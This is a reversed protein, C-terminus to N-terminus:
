KVQTYGEKLARQLDGAPITGVKGDKNRVRVREQSPAPTSASRSPPKISGRETTPLGTQKGLDIEGPKVRNREELAQPEIEDAIKKYIKATETDGQMEYYTAAGNAAGYLAWPGKAAAKRVTSEWDSSTSTSQRPPAHEFKGASRDAAAIREASQIRANTIAIDADKGLKTTDFAQAYAPNNRLMAESISQIAKGMGAPGGRMIRSRMRTAVGEPLGMQDIAENVRLMKENDPLQDIEGTLAGLRQYARSLIADRNDANAKDIASPQTAETLAAELGKQKSTAAIGPLGAELGQNGLRLKDLELPERASLRGEQAQEMAMRQRAEMLKQLSLQEDMNAQQGTMFAGAYPAIQMLSTLDAM